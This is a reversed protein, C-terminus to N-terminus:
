FLFFFSLFFFHFAKRPWLGLTEAALALPNVRGNISSVVRSPGFFQQNEVRRRHSREPPLIDNWLVDLLCLNIM